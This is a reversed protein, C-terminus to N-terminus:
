LSELLTSWLLLNTYLNGDVDDWYTYITNPHESSVIIYAWDVSAALTKNKSKVNKM